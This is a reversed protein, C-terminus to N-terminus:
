LLHRIRGWLTIRELISDGSLLLRVRPRLRTLLIRLVASGDRGRVVSVLVFDLLLLRRAELLTPRLWLGRILETAFGVAVELDYDPGLLLSIAAAANSSLHGDGVLLDLGAAADLDIWVFRSTVLRAVTANYTMPDLTGEDAARRLMSVTSFGVIGMGDYALQRIALDDAWFAAGEVRAVQLAAYTEPGLTENMHRLEDPGIDLFGRVPVVEFDAEIHDALQQLWNRRDQIEAETTEQSIYRDGIKGMFGAQRAALPDSMSARLSEIAPQPVLLREYQAQLGAWLDLDAITVLATPDLVVTPCEAATRERRRHAEEAPHVLLRSTPSRRLDHSIEYVSASLMRAVVAMPLRRDNYLAMLRAAFAAREDVRALLASFDGDGVRVLQLRRDDGFLTQFRAPTEQFAHVYKSKVSTITVRVGNPLEIADGGRHGMLRQALPHDPALEAQGNPHNPEIIVLLSGDPTALDAATDTAVAAASLEEDRSPDRSLFVSLYALHFEPDDYKARRAQYAPELAGELGLLQRLQALQMSATPDQAVDANRVRGLHERARARDGQRYAEYGARVSLRRLPPELEALEAFLREAVTLDGIRSRVEAEIESIIPIVTGDGRQHECFTLAPGLRGANFLCVAYRQRVDVPAGDAVGEYADAAEGFAKQRTLLDGLELRLRSRAPEDASLVGQTLLTVAGDDDGCAQKVRAAALLSDPQNDWRERIETVIAEAEELSGQAGLIEGRMTLAERQATVTPIERLVEELIALSEQWHGTARYAQALSLVLVTDNRDNARARELFPTAGAPDRMVLALAKTKIAGQNEPDERLVYECESVAEDHRDLMWLVAARVSLVELYISRPERAEIEHSASALLSEAEAFASRAQNAQWPLPPAAALSRQMDNVIAVALETQLRPNGPALSIADRYASMGGAIDGDEIRWRGVSGVVDADQRLWSHEALLGDIRAQGGGIRLAVLLALGSHANPEIRWAAEACELARPGDGAGAEAQAANALAKPDNPRLLLAARLHGRAVEAEGLENAASGLNTELRFQINTSVDGPLDRRIAELLTRASVPRGADLLQRAMDLRADLRSGSGGAELHEEIRGASARLEALQDGVTLDQARDEAHLVEIRNAIILQGQDSGLLRDRLHQFFSTLIDAGIDRGTPGDPLYFYDTTFSGLLEAEIGREGAVFRELIQKFRDSETWRKLPDDVVLGAGFDRQTDAVSRNLVGDPGRGDALSVLLREGFTTLVELVVGSIIPDM